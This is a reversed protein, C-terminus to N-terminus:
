VAMEGKTEVSTDGKGIIANKICLHDKTNVLICLTVISSHVDVTEGLLQLFRDPGRL